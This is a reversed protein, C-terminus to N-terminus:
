SKANDKCVEVEIKFSVCSEEFDNKQNEKVLQTLNHNKVPPKQWVTQQKKTKNKKKTKKNQKSFQHRPFSKNFSTQNPKKLLLM